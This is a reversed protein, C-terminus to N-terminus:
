SILDYRWTVGERVVKAPNGAAMSEAPLSRNVTSRAAVISGRGITCGKLVIVDMGLWVSNEIVIDEPYNTLPYAMGRLATDFSREDEAHIM